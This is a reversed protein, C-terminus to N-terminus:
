AGDVDDQAGEERDEDSVGFNGNGPEVAPGVIDGDGEGGDKDGEGDAREEEGEVEDGDEDGVEDREEGEEDDDEEAGAVVVAVSVVKDDENLRMLTVGKTARGVISIERVPIRIMMGGITSILLEENSFVKMISIVNGNREDTIITIVGKGGRNTKRYNSPCTRKGYGNETITLIMPAGESEEVVMEEGCEGPETIEEIMEEEEDEEDDGEDEEEEGSGPIEGLPVLAMAVVEDGERLRIGKVGHTNRGTPRVRGESFHIALGRRTGLFIDMDGDSLKTEVLEDGERLKIAIIGVRSIHRYKSLATKKIIGNKTAFTIFHEDDFESVPITSFIKEDKELEPLLNIIAKGRGYRQAQPIQYAKLKFVRGKTTFFLIFNHSSTVFADVVYDGDKTKMGILGKGGRRQQRYTDVPMRKIYSESTISIVNTEIPILDEEDIDMVNVNIECRREDGFNEKLERTEERVITLVEVDSGLIELYRKISDILDGYELFIKERELSTLKSLQMGLIANAQEESLTVTGDEVDVCTAAEEKEEGEREACEQEELTLDSSRMLLEMVKGEPSFSESTLNLLADKADKSSRIIVLIRDIEDLAILLGELIHARKRAKQLDFRTRRRIVEKRHSIFIDLLQKLSLEKPRGNVIALNIIGFTSELVTHKFLNNMVVEEMADARLQIVIRMGDKDSEDRLDTIGEVRKDKVLGAISVMLSSKNVQYPIETVVLCKRGGRMEEVHYKARLRVKGRGEQYASVIGGRGYIIGGTPFDPGKIYRMLDLSTLEPRLRAYPDRLREIEDDVMATIGDCVECLNHPPMNTAMGVAIGSSGNVLLNPLRSPLVTPESLSGDYNPVFGVTEKELDDLMEKAIKQLRSETYRMAAAPDGDVSGFNGQGNVLPYRLSFPQAMRVMTDYIASDGHPHYKGMVDGVIRASKKYPKNYHMGAEGMAYLIRRHVPKLGDRADPLARGAIVSMSYNLYSEKMEARIDRPHVSKGTMRDENMNEETM